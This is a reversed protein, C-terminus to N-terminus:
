AADRCIAPFVARAFAGRSFGFVFIDDGDEFNEVLWGYADVVQDDIGYGFVEGRAIEGFQTGVGAAYYIRQERDDKDKAACLSRARWVNTNGESKDTTGDLIRRAAQRELTARCYCDRVYGNGM